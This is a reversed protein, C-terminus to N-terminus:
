AQLSDQAQAAPRQAGVGDAFAGAISTRVRGVPEGPRPRRIVYTRALSDHWGRGEGSFLVSFAEFPILRAITRGLARGLGPTRGYEDVVRTNTLLKGLTFGFLGEMLTYYAAMTAVNLLLEQGVGLNEVWELAVEGWAIMALMMLVAGLLFQALLDLLYNLFRRGKGAPVLDLKHLAPMVPAAGARYPDHNDM